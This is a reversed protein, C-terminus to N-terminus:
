GIYKKHSFEVVDDDIQCYLLTTDIKKHGLMRQVHELRMGRRLTDTAVTRRFKHPFIRGTGTSRGLKRVMNEAAEISLRRYPKKETIFLATNNDTRSDLYLKLYHMCESTFYIKRQKNGKGTIIAKDQYIDTINLSCVESIRAGTSYLTEILAMDRVTKSGNKLLDMDVASITEKITQPEKAPKIRRMPNKAIVDEDELYSFFANIYRIMNNLTSNKIKHKNQYVMLYYRIDDTSVETARKGITELARRTDIVYHEITKITRGELKKTAAFRKLLQENSSDYISLENHETLEELLVMRLQQLQEASLDKSM